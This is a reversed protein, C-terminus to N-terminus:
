GCGEFLDDWSNGLISKIRALTALPPFYEGAEISQWYRTSLGSKEAVQEQTLGAAIRLASINKGFRERHPCAIPKQSPMWGFHRLSLFSFVLSQCVSGM